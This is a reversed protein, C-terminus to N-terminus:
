EGKSRSPRVNGGKEEVDVTCSEDQLKEFRFEHGKQLFIDHQIYSCVFIFIHTHTYTHIRICIYSYIRISTHTYTYICICDYVHIQM